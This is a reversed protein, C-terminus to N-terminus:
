NFILFGIFIGVSILVSAYVVHLIVGLARFDGSGFLM